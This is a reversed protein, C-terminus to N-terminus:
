NTMEKWKEGLISYLIIEKENESYNELEKILLKKNKENKVLKALNGFIIDFQGSLFGKLILPLSKQNVGYRDIFAKIFYQHVLQYKDNLKLYYEELLPFYKEDYLALGFVAYSGSLARKDEDDEDEIDRYFEFKKM